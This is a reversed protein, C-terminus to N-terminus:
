ANPVKNSQAEIARTIAAVMEDQDAKVGAEIREAEKIKEAAENRLQEALAVREPLSLPRYYM